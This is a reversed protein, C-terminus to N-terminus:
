LIKEPGIIGGSIVLKMGEEVTWNPDLVQSEKVVILFGSTPNPVTPVFVKLLKEGSKQDTFNGTVFGIAWIESKLYDVLVVRKFLQKEPLSLSDSLQRGIQYTTRILPIKKTINEIIGFFQKGLVNSTILGIFYLLVLLLLVGLGPIKIGVFHDIIRTIRQDIFVYIFQLVLGCFVLPIMAIAGRLIYGRAHRLFDKM